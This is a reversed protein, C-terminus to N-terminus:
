PKQGREEGAGPAKALSVFADELNGQGSRRILEEATGQATLRGRSLIGISDALAQAEELYHTTLVVTTQGKLERIVQWLERRALVDLGLTPEDLFLVQPHSILAMAISLRRQWGGSLTKARRRAVTRLQLSELLAETRAKAEKRNAGSLGALLILNEEATLNPAVATDQPCLSIRQKVAERQRVVDYGLVRAEGGSPPLLGTLIKIATSKGAGNVGLLAYLTGAPVALDLGSLAQVSGFQKTLGKTEVANM